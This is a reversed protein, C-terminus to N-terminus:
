KKNIFNSEFGRSNEFSKILSKEINSRKIVANNEWFQLNYPINKILDLDSNVFASTMNKTDIANDYEYIILKASEVIKKDPIGSLTITKIFTLNDLVSFGNKNEKFNITYTDYPNKIKKPTPNPYHMEGSIKVINDSKTKIYIVGEFFYNEKLKPTCIIEAIEDDTGYNIFKVIKLNFINKENRYSFPLYINKSSSGSHYFVSSTINQFKFSSNEKSAYRANTPLWKTIGLQSWLGDFYIENINTSNNGEKSTKQYFARCPYRNITDSMVKNIAANLLTLAPNETKAESLNIIALPVYIEGLNESIVLKLTKKYSVHSFLIKVPLASVIIEFEGNENTITGKNSQFDLISLDPIPQHTLSDLVVGNIKIQAQVQISVLIFILLLLKKQSAIQM